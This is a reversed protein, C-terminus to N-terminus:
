AHNEEELPLFNGNEFILHIVQAYGPKKAQVGLAGLFLRIVGGHAVVAFDGPAIRAALDMARRFRDLGQEEPEGNPLPLTPDIGRAAYLAPWLQRIRSFPLGDWDGASLEALDELIQPEGIARATQVARSLPSSFVATVPPLAAAMAKAQALGEPGLPLDARGLCLREGPPFDPLGHRILYVHNM